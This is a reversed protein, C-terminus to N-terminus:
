LHAVVGSASGNPGGINTYEDTHRCVQASPQARGCSRCDWMQRKKPLCMDRLDLPCRQSWGTVRPPRSPSSASAIGSPAASRSLRRGRRSGIGRNGIRDLPIPLDSSAVRRVANAERIRPPSRSSALRKRCTAQMTQLLPNHTLTIVALLTAAASWKNPNYLPTPPPKPRGKEKPPTRAGAPRVAPRGHLDRSQQGDSQTL